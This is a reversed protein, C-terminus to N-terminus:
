NQRGSLEPTYNKSTETEFNWYPNGMQRKVYQVTDLPKAVASRKAIDGVMTEDADFLVVSPTTRQGERNVIIEPKGLKNLYAAATNTTGLDIGITKGM